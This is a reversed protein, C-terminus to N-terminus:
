SGIDIALSLQYIHRKHLGTLEALQKSATSRSAGHQLLQRLEALILEDTWTIETRVAGALIITYEGKPERQQYLEIAEELNGRWFEEHMKTLERALVISRATGCVAALDALTRQIRHPSEYFIITREETKLAQLQTQRLEGKVPLFGEFVFRSTNLGSASLGTILATVGPIPVVSAGAAVCAAVLIYGPDSIGPMGADTVLAISKGSQLKALIEPIKQQENHEHCSIQPTKIQFHHLLKGTHRTDEAAILDVEQLIRLARITIDELNGIPTGVLYLTGNLHEKTLEQATSQSHLM